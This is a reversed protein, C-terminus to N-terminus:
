KTGVTLVFSDAGVVDAVFAVPTGPSEVLQFTQGEHLFELEVGTYGYSNNVTNFHYIKISAKTTNGPDIGQFEGSLVIEPKNAVNVFSEADTDGTVPVGVMDSSHIDKIWTVSSM